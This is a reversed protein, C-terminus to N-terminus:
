RLYGNCIRRLWRFLLVLFLLLKLRSLYLNIASTIMLRKVVYFSVFRNEKSKTSKCFDKFAVEIEKTDKKADDSLTNVFKEVTSICVAANVFYIFDTFLALFYLAFLICIYIRM